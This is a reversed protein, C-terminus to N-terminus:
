LMPFDIKHETSYSVVMPCFIHSLIINTYVIVTNVPIQCVICLQSWFLLGATFLQQLQVNESLRAVKMKPVYHPHRYTM